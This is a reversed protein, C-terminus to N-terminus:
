DYLRESLERRIIYDPLRLNEKLQDVHCMLEKGTRGSNLIFGVMEASTPKSLLPIYEKLLEYYGVSLNRVFLDISEKQFEDLEYM